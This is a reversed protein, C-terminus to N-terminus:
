QEDRKMGIQLYPKGYNTAVRVVRGNAFDVQTPLVEDDAVYNTSQALLKELERVRDQAAALAKCAPGQEFCEGTLHSFSSCRYAYYGSLPTGIQSM